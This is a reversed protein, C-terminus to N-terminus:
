RNAKYFTKTNGSGVNVHGSDAIVNHNNGNGSIPQNISKDGLYEILM